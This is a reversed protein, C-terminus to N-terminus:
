TTDPVDSGMVCNNADHGLRAAYALLAHDLRSPQLDDGFKRLPQARLLAEGLIEGFLRGEEGRGKRDAARTHPAQSGRELDLHWGCLNEGEHHLSGLVPLTEPRHGEAREHEKGLVVFLCWRRSADRSTKPDTLGLVRACQRRAAMSQKTAIEM